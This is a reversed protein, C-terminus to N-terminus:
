YFIFINFSYSSILELLKKIRTTAPEAKKKINHTLSLHDVIADFDVRKLLHSFHAINIALRCLELETISYNKTAEPLRKSAYAILKPKGNQIQYLTSGMAFKSTDLYLHFRGTTDPMHLFPPKALRHKIEEFSDQQEKGM